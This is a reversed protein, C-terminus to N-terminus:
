RSLPSILIQHAGSNSTFPMLHTEPDTLTLRPSSNWSLNFLHISLLNPFPVLEPYNESWRCKSYSLNLAKRVQPGAGQSRIAPSPVQMCEPVIREAPARFADSQLCPQMFGQCSSIVLFLDPIFFVVVCSWSSTSCAQYRFAWDSSLISSSIGKGEALLRMAHVFSPDLSEKEAHLEPLYKDQDM